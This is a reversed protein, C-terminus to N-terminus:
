NISSNNPYDTLIRFQLAHKFIYGNSIGNSCYLPYGEVSNYTVTSDVNTVVNFLMSLNNSINTNNLINTTTNIISVITIDFM